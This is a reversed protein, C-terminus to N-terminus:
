RNIALKRQSELKEIDLTFAHRIIGGYKYFFDSVREPVLLPLYENSINELSLIYKAAALFEEKEWLPFYFLNAYKKSIEKYRRHDPSVTVITNVNKIQHPEMAKTELPEFLYLIENKKFFKFVGKGCEDSSFCDLTELFIVTFDSLGVQRIVVKFNNKTNFDLDTRFLEPRILKALILYQSVSKGVGPNSIIISDQAEEEMILELFRPQWSRMFICNSALKKKGLVNVNLNMVSMGADLKTLNTVEKMALLISKMQEDVKFTEEFENISL